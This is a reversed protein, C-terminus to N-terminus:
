GGSTKRALATAYVQELQRGTGAWSFLSEARDRLERSHEPRSLREHLCLHIADALDHANGRKGAYVGLTGLYERNQPTDFAVTPLGMAMYDLIKGCGETQTLKPAVAIDGLALHAPADELAVKGTFRVRDDVELERAMERYAPVGPFGGILYAVDMGRQRLIRAAELLQPIGQYNSLLGLYVVVPWGDPLGLALRRGSVEESTLVDPRFHDTNVSDPLAQIRSPHSGFDEVLARAATNTSTIIVDPMQVIRRELLRFWHYWTGGPALFHHDVMESTLSGQFDGILPVRKLRSVLHGILAGEHLHGHVLDFQRGVALKLATWALLLDFAIKHRSSGVEYDARWPTPRTRIIELDPVDRGLFYTALTVSHGLNQLARTEDLIRVHCGYDLFFSTPAIMLIRLQANL